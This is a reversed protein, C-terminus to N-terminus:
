YGYRHGTDGSWLRNKLKLQFEEKREKLKLIDIRKKKKNNIFKLRALKTNICITARVMRHDSAIDVKTIVECNNVIGKQSCLIFDIQNRTVGNPSEWTWYRKKDKKFFTNAIILKQEAAFELLMEGRRNREGVGFKGLISEEGNKCEGVKANLDGMVITYKGKNDKIAKDIDEYFEEVEVDEYDTTPAYVQIVCM